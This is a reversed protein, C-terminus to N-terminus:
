RRRVIMIALGAAIAMLTAFSIARGIVFSRPRYVVRVAHRGAPVYVSLFAANARSMLVRRGDIYARWGKWASESIVVWGDREMEADFVYEGGRDHSRLAVRGPGNEREYRQTPTTIFALERLDRVGRMRDVIEGFSAGGVSVRLPVFVRAIVNANELLMATSDRALMRWGSPVPLANSQIAFRTNLFSLMPATVDDVRNFWIGHQRSWIPYTQAYPSLTLAEYGRADDLGYYINSSPPFATGRGVIRFPERVGRLADFLAVHPYAARAPFSRFTDYESLTRQAVLLLVLVAAARAGAVRVAIVGIALFAIEALVRYRGYDSPTDALVVHRSLWWTGAALAVLVSAMTLMAARADANRVLHEIGLAALIVLSLAGSFALRDHHTVDLLPLRALLTALPTWRAGALMCFLALAAFFWTEPTRRRWIAYLALSLVLSGAAATEAGVYGLSPHLWSRVHLYPFVDTALAALVQQNHVAASKTSFVVKKIAYEASQPIAEILPLLFVACILAAVAGAAIAVFVARWPATRRRVLEFLAYVGGVLVDLFLSEPHGSLISLALAITLLAGSALRPHWVVRRTACLLLPAFATTFGMATLSYLVICASLAWGAAAFLSAGEGCDLERAFLFAGLAAVFLAMAASYTMSVAAPLLCAILTFPSYPASQAEAALPHGALNYGNWLPWEGRELSAQVARRWPFFESIIDVASANRAAGIGFQPALARFPDDQYLHDIPGYVRGSVLAYGTIALPLAVLAIASARSLPRVFRHVLWVIVGTTGLYLLLPM